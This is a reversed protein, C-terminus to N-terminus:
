WVEKGETPGFDVGEHRNKSTIGKLLDDVAYTKQRVPEIVIKGKAERVEVVEDLDLGSFAQRHSYEM